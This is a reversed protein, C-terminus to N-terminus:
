VVVVFTLHYNTSTSIGDLTDIRVEGRSTWTWSPVTIRTSVKTASDVIEANAVEVFLPKKGRKTKIFVPFADAATAPVNIRIRRTECQGNQELDINGEFAGCVDEMFSSLRETFDHFWEPADPYDNKSFGRLRPPRAM